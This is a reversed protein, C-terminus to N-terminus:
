NKPSMGSFGKAFGEQLLIATAQTKLNRHIKLPRQSQYGSRKYLAPLLLRALCLRLGFRYDGPPLLGRLGASRLGQLFHLGKGKRLLRMQEHFDNRNASGDDRRGGKQTHIGFKGKSSAGGKHPVSRQAEWYWRGFAVMLEKKRRYIKKSLM